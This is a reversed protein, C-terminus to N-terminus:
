TAARKRAADWARCLDCASEGHYRHRAMAAATGHPRLSPRPRIPVAVVELGLAAFLRRLTHVTIGNKGNRACIYTLRAIGAADALQAATWGTEIRRREIEDILPDITV